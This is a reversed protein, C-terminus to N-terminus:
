KEKPKQTPKHYASALYIEAYVTSHSIIASEYWTKPSFEAVSMTVASLLPRVPKLRSSHATM